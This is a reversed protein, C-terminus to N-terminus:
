KNKKSFSEILDIFSLGVFIVLLWFEIMKGTHYQNMWYSLGMLILIPIFAVGIFTIAGNDGPRKSGATIITHLIFVIAIIILGYGINYQWYLMGLLGVLVWLSENRLIKFM